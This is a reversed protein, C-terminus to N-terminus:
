LWIYRQDYEVNYRKLIALFEQEFSKSLHHEKQNAIYNCVKDFDSYGISFAGYGNQWYFRKYASGKTKIWKSSHSKLEEVLKCLHVKGSLSCLIHVHDLHGGVIFVQCNHRNCIGGLYAYLESEISPLIFKERHKTSFVIHLYNIVLSQGM